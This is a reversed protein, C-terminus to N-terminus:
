MTAGGQFQSGSYGYIPYHGLPTGVIPPWPLGMRIRVSRIAFRIQSFQECSYSGVYGVWRQHPCSQLYSYRLASSRAARFNHRRLPLGLAKSLSHLSSTPLPLRAAYSFDCRPLRVHFGDSLFYFLPGLLLPFRHRFQCLFVELVFAISLLRLAGGGRGIGGPRM